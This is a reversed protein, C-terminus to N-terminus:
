GIDRTKSKSNIARELMQVIKVQEDLALESFINVITTHQENKIDRVIIQGNPTLYYSPLYDATNDDVLCQVLGHQELQNIAEGLMEAEMDKHIAIDNESIGPNQYIVALIELHDFNIILGITKRVKDSIDQMLHQAVKLLRSALQTTTEDESVLLDQM